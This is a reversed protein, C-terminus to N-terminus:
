YYKTVELNVTPIPVTELGKIRRLPHGRDMPVRGSPYKKLDAVSYALKILSISMNEM